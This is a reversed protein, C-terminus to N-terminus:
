TETTHTHKRTTTESTHAPKHTSIYKKHYTKTLLNSLWQGASEAPQRRAEVVLPYGSDGSGKLCPGAM